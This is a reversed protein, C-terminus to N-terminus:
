RWRDIVSTLRTVVPSQLLERFGDRAPGWRQLHRAIM